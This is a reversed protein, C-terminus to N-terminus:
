KGHPQDEHPLQFQARYKAFGADVRLRDVAFDELHYHHVGYKHQRNSDRRKEMSQRAEDTLPLSLDRYIRAVEALPDKVLDYYLVDSIRGAVQSERFAVAREVMTTVKRTWFAGVEGPTVAESFINMAHFAM